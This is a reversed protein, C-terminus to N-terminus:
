GCYRCRTNNKSFVTQADAEELAYNLLIRLAKSQDPLNFEQVQEAIWDAQDSRIEFTVSIKDGAM